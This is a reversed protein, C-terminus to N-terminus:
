SNQYGSNVTIVLRFDVVTQDANTRQQTNLIRVDGIQPQQLLRRVFSSLAEHDKAEGAVEMHTQIKWAEKAKKNSREAEPIVIFYGTNVGKPQETTKSGAREFSWNKFWVNNSDLARDITVFMSEAVAGGRLKELINHKELLKKYDKELTQLVTRQQSSIAKKQELLVIKQQYADAKDNLVFSVSSALVIFVLMAFGWRQLIHLQQLYRKYDEPVLNM